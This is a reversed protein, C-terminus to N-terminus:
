AGQLGPSPGRGRWTGTDHIIHSAWSTITTVRRSCDLSDSGVGGLQVLLEGGADGVLYFIYNFLGGSCSKFRRHSALRCSVAARVLFIPVLSSIRLVFSCYGGAGAGAGQAAGNSPHTAHAIARSPVHISADAHLTRSSRRTRQRKFAQLTHSRPWVMTASRAVM